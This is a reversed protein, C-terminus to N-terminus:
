GHPAMPALGQPERSASVPRAVAAATSQALERRVVLQTVTLVAVIAYFLDFYGLSLFAGAVAYGVLSVQIMAALSRAWALDPRDRTSRVISGATRFSVFLLALYIGLGVFGNDSLLQFYISHIARNTAASPVYRSFLAEDQWIDFGGGVLPRDLALRYSFNWADFRGQLSSDADYTEITAMRKYWQDPVLSLGIGFVVAMIIITLLKQRSKLGLFALMSCLAVLGGRSYSGFVALVTLGMAGWLGLRIWRNTGSTRVANILPVLMVLALALQNNDEIFSGPPGFVHYDGRTLITFIGGRVGYFGVSAVIVWMLQQIRERSQILCTAIVTMGLIKMVEIWKDVAVDPHIAFATSISVWIILAGLLHIIPSNPPHKAERSLLWALITAAADVLAVRLEQAYGWTLRHPSMLSLWFWVLIGIYPRVLIFPVSGFVIVVVLFDRM